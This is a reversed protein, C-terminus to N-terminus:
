HTHVAAAKKVEACRSPKPFIKDPNCLNDPNFVRMIAVQADLEEQTFIKTMDNQKEIGIGHEGTISGGVDACVQLVESGVKVALETEGPKRSDFLILPHLNGDGAHFVNAIRLGSRQSIEAIRQLVEPLRSRPIVGDQVLYDPSLNGMAGFATKRNSWWLAREKDNQAVRVERVHHRRCIEVIQSAMEEMGATLGDLEIILVAALDKPYGVPYTGAEVGEIAIRDMMELAGPIMGEAIIASVTQSADEVSDYLALITKVGQPKKLIRVFVKTVIGMTGESGVVLGTLDYGPLDPVTGGLTVIEGNPLVMELGLVHNSTVGYKLCHPGGANEGVNGGITCSMGSSPDPAYYYGEHEIAKTLRLNVHGPEVVAVRNRFDVALLRKMKVLSILVEGGIPIAGGSLGTGAGRPIFPIRERHLLKVVAAVQETNDPFVVARPRNKKITFGDCEYALLDDPKYLVSQRGVIKQLEAILQEHTM